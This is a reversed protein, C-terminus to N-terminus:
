IGEVWYNKEKVVPWLSHVVQCMVWSQESTMKCPGLFICGEQTSNIDNQCAMTNAHWFSILKAESFIM